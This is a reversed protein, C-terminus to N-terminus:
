ISKRARMTLIVPYAEDFVDLKSRDVEALALGHLFSVAAFVNGNAAVEMEKPSFQASILRVISSRTFSWCWTERAGGRDIQSIGPVTILLTGGPRLAARLNM